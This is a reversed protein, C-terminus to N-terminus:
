MSTKKKLLKSIFAPVSSFCCSKKLPRIFLLHDISVQKHKIRLEKPNEGLPAFQNAGDLKIPTSTKHEGDEPVWQFVVPLQQRRCANCLVQKCVSFLQM